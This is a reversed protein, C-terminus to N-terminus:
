QSTITQETPVCLHTVKSQFTLIEELESMSKTYMGDDHGQTWTVTYLEARGTICFLGKYGSDSHLLSTEILELRQLDGATFGM